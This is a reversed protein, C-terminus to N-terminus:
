HRRIMGALGTLGRMAYALLVLSVVGMSAFGLFKFATRGQFSQNWADLRLKDFDSFEYMATTTPATEPVTNITTVQGEFIPAGLRHCDFCDTVGLANRAPRVDHGLKWAYPEAADHEFEVPTGDDGLRYARGGGVYVPQADEPLNEKLETLAEALKTQFEEIAKENILVDLKALEDKTLEEDDVEAREEGLLETKEEDSLKVDRLVGKWTEGSRVRLTRRLVDYVEDPDIPTIQEGQLTGWFAPWMMRHPYLTGGNRKLVPAVIGPPMEASYDHSPLGLGHALATMMPYAQDTPHPGSHCATCSLKDFHLPPLGKHLPEPAGLRGGEDGNMHCGECSLTYVPEGTAHQEDEYGRVTHHGIGNRHCDSCSMGAQLHVDQDHNWDPGARDGVVRTTHCYYCASNDPTRIVDFFVRKEGNVRDAAYTVTPLKHRSNEEVNAPDFDDPLSSVKGDVYGLGAAATPAWAFNEDDIQDRWVEMSYVHNNSHCIMCDIELEGSLRWHEESEEPEAEAETEDTGEAEVVPEEAEAAKKAAEEALTPWAGPGGGPLHHGFKLVFDWASIGLKEPDYTGQWGRYSLPIQTATREDTWMWPEGPRGAYALKRIANFHHGQTIADYDHCRGCTKEPSYPPANEATPDIKRSNADYLDIWHVYLSRSGTQAFRSEAASLQVFAGAILFLVSARSVHRFM